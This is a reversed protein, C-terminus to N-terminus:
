FKGAKLELIEADRRMYANNQIDSWVMLVRMFIKLFIYLCFGINGFMLIFIINHYEALGVLVRNVDSIFAGAFIPM